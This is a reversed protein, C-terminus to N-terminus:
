ILQHGESRHGDSLHWVVRLPQAWSTPLFAAAYLRVYFSSSYPGLESGTNTVLSNCSTDEDQTNGVPCQIRQGRTQTECAM